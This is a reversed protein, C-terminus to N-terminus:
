FDQGEFTEELAHALEALERHCADGPRTHDSLVHLLLVLGNEGTDSYQDHLFEILSQVRSGRNDTEPLKDKWPSLRADVFIAQLAKHSDVPACRLLTALLRAYLSPSLGSADTQSALDATAKIREEFSLVNQVFWRRLLESTLMYTRRVSDYQIFGYSILVHLARDLISRSRLVETDGLDQAEIVEVVQALNMTEVTDFGESLGSNLAAYVAHVDPTAIMASCDEFWYALESTVGLCEAIVQDLAELTISFGRSASDELQAMVYQLLYPHGGTYRLIQDVLESAPQLEPLRTILARAAEDPLTELAYWNRLKRPCNIEVLQDYLPVGGTMVVDLQRTVNQIASMNAFLKVFDTFLESAFSTQILQDVNDLLLLFRAAGEVRSDSSRVIDDFADQFDLLARSDQKFLRVAKEHDIYCIDTQRCIERFLGKFFDARSAPTEIRLDIFVPLYKVQPDLPLSLIISLLSTKGTREGGFLVYWRGETSTLFNPFRAQLQELRGLIWHPQGELSVDPEPEIPEQYEYIM